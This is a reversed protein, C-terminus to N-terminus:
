KDSDSDSNSDPKPTETKDRYDIDREEITRRAVEDPSQNMKESVM